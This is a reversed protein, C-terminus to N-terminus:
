SFEYMVAENRNIFFHIGKSCENWRNDDFDDVEITEGVKYIFTNDKYSCAHSVNLTNGVLDQIDLVIAKSCRCKRTNSSTRKADDTIQLKVIVETNDPINDPDHEFTPIICAKKWGIFSGTDPCSIPIFPIDKANKLVVGKLCASSRLNAGRLNAYSLDALGLNVSILRAYSLDAYNLNAGVLNTYSLDACSLNAHNLLAHGLYAHRLKAFNLDAYNLDAYNLNTYKLNAYRLDAGNLNAYSLDIYNLNVSSLNTDSLDAKMTEWGEVDENLWHQHNDIIIKLQEATIHRM